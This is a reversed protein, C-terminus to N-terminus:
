TPEARNPKSRQRNGGDGRDEFGAGRVGSGSGWAGSGVGVGWARTMDSQSVSSSASELRLLKFM